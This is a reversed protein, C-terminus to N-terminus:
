IGNIHADDVTDVERIWSSNQNGYYNIKAVSLGMGWTGYYRLQTHISHGKVLYIM